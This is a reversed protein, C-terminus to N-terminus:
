GEEDHGLVVILSNLRRQVRRRTVDDQAADREARLRRLLRMMAADILVDEVHNLLSGSVRAVAELREDKVEGAVLRVLEVVTSLVTLRGPRPFGFRHLM